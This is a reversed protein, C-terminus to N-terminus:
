LDDLDPIMRHLHSTDIYVSERRERGREREVGGGGGGGRRGIVVQLWDELDESLSRGLQGTHPTRQYHRQLYTVNYSMAIILHVTHPSIGIAVKNKKLLYGALPPTHTIM